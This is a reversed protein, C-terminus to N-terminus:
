RVETVRSQGNRSATVPTATSPASIPAARTLRTGSLARSFPNPQNTSAIPTTMSTVSSTPSSAQAATDGSSGDVSGTVGGPTDQGGPEEVATGAGGGFPCAMRLASRSVWRLIRLRRLRARPWSSATIRSTSPSPLQRSTTVCSEATEVARSRAPKAITEEAMFFQTASGSRARSSSLRVTSSSSFSKRDRAPGARPSAGPATAGPAM